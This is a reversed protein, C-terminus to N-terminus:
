IVREQVAKPQHHCLQLVLELPGHCTATTHGPVGVGLADVGLQRLCMGLQEAAHVLQLISAVAVQVQM